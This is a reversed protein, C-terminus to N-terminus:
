ALADFIKRAVDRDDLYGEIGHRNKTHNNVEVNNQVSQSIGFNAEDLPYLAVVDREDLANYWADACGPFALPRLAKRIAGVALPSGLTVFLPIQWGANVGERRLLDYAVVTGLSHAVVVTPIGPQIAARVGVDITNKVGPNRLYQYVDRTALAISAGSAGPVHRDIASLTAQVWAWNMVGRELVDSGAEAQIQEDTVNAESCIEAVVAHLFELEAIDTQTGRVIVEAVQQEPVGNVLDSLTQGYYPFRVDSEALPMSAGSKKLGRAWADLWLAKLAVADKNEQARGHIMVLHKTM